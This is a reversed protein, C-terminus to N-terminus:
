TVKLFIGAGFVSLKQEIAVDIAVSGTRIYNQLLFPCVLTATEPGGQPFESGGVRRSGDNVSM